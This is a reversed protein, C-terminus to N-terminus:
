WLFVATRRGEIRRSKLAKSFRSGGLLRCFATVGLNRRFYKAELPAAKWFYQSVAGAMQASRMMAAQNKAMRPQSHVLPGLGPLVKGIRMASTWNLSLFLRRIGLVLLLIKRASYTVTVNRSWFFPRLNSDLLMRRVPSVTRHGMRRQAAMM